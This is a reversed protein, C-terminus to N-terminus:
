MVPDSAAIRMKSNLLVQNAIKARILPKIEDSFVTKGNFDMRNAQRYGIYVLGYAHIPTM